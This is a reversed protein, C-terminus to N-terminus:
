KKLPLFYLKGANLFVKDGEDALVMTTNWDEWKGSKGMSAMVTKGNVTGKFGTPYNYCYTDQTM